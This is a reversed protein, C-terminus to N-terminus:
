LIEVLSRTCMSRMNAVFKIFPGVRHDNFALM